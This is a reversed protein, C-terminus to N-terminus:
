TYIQLLNNCFFLFCVKILTLLRSVSGLVTKAPTITSTKEALNMAEVAGNLTSIIGERRKPQQFEAEM